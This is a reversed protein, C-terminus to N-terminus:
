NFSPAAFPKNGNIELALEVWKKQVTNMHVNPFWASDWLGPEIEACYSRCVRSVWALFLFFCYWGWIIRIKVCFLLPVNGSRSTRTLTLLRNKKKKITFSLSLRASPATLEAFTVALPSFLTQTFIHTLTDSPIHIVFVSLGQFIVSYISFFYDLM